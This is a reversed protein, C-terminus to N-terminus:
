RGAFQKRRPKLFILARGRRFTKQINIIYMTTKLKQMLLYKENYSNDLIYSSLEM